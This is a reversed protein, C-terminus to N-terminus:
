QFTRQPPTSVYLLLLIDADIDYTLSCCGGLLRVCFSWTALTGLYQWSDNCCVHVSFRDNRERLVLQSHDLIGWAITSATLRSHYSLMRMNLLQLSIGDLRVGAEFITSAYLMNM